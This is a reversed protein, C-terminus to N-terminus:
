VMAGNFQESGRPSRTWSATFHSIPNLLLAFCSRFAVGCASCSEVGNGGGADSGTRSQGWGDWDSVLGM